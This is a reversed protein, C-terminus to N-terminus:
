MGYTITTYVRRRDYDFLTGGTSRRRSNDYLLAVVAGDGVRISLGGGISDAHDIRASAAATQPYDLRERSLRLALDIPGVVLKM